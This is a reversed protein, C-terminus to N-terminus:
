RPPVYGPPPPPPPIRRASSPAPEVVRPQLVHGVVFYGLVGAFGWAPSRGKSVALRAVGFCFVATGIMFLGVAVALIGVGDALELLIRGSLSAALGVGLYTQAQAGYARTETM